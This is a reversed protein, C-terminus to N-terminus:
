RSFGLIRVVIGRTNGTTTFRLIDGLVEWSLFYGCPLQVYFRNETGRKRTLRQRTLPLPNQQLARTFAAFQNCAEESCDMIDQQLEDAVLVDCPM